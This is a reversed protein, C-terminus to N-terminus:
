RSASTTLSELYKQVCFLIGTSWYMTWVGVNEGAWDDLPERIGNKDKEKKIKVSAEMGKDDKEAVQPIPEMEAWDYEERWDSLRPAWQGNWTKCSVWSQNVRTIGRENTEDWTQRHGVVWNDAHSACRVCGRDNLKEVLSGTSLIDWWLPMAMKHPHPLM